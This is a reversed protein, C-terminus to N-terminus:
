HPIQHKDSLVFMLWLKQSYNTKETPELISNKQGSYINQERSVNNYRIHVNDVCFVENYYM